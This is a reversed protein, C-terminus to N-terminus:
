LFKKKSELFESALFSLEKLQVSHLYPKILQLGLNHAQFQYLQKVLFPHLIAQLHHPLFLTDQRTLLQSVQLSFLLSSSDCSNLVPFPKYKISSNVLSTSPDYVISTSFSCITICTSNGVKSYYKIFSSKEKNEFFAQINMM